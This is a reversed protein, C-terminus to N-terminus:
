CGVLGGAGGQTHTHTHTHTNHTHKVESPQWTPIRIHTHTHTHTHTHEIIYNGALWHATYTPIRGTLPFVLCLHVCVHQCVSPETLKHYNWQTGLHNTM